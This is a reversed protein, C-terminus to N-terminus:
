LSEEQKKYAKIFESLQQIMEDKTYIYKESNNWNEAYKTRLDYHGETVAEQGIEKESFFTSFIDQTPVPETFFNILKIDNNMVVQIDKWLYKLYYYQYSSKTNIMELCNDNLLDYIVNKKLGDGFLGPLRVITCDSFKSSCFQEFALRHTGYAHNDVSDCNFDEDLYQTTAYVDITSILIFRKAKITSLIDELTKISDLDKKPEKNAIWKVASIGACVVLDYEQDKMEQFNKSNYLDTFNYQQQLNSGVFGTYGILATRM